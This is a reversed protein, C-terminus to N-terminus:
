ENLGMGWRMLSIPVGGYSLVQEHFARLSYDPGARRRYAERLEKFERRGVAYALQYCPNACYRRVEAEANARDFQLRDVLLNVAEGFKMGRTHLGVDAVIRVARWLLAIKQFLRQEPATYFGEDGMMEECYLAWGEISLATGVVKRVPRVQGVTHLFQLHHGPYGEHLATVPIDHTCHDRLLRDAVAGDASPDPPTVFFRGTRDSSFPGPPQYAALPTLPRLFEPTAVVELSGEPVPALKKEEVFLRAREMEKAYADVLGDASPHDARLREALDRWSVNPEIERAIQEISAEIEAVLALGYRWLEPATNRLAHEYHLRFNFWDEGIAFDGGAGDALDDELFRAFGAVADCGQACAAAFGADGDPALEREVQDILRVGGAAIDIASRVFVAPCADMTAQARALFAPVARVRGAAARARHDRPRDRLALLLYLGEFMHALWFGPNHVHPQERELCHIVVRTDGLLATRDIEDQLTETQCWELAGASSKLAALYQKVDEVGYLGLRDDYQTLGAATAAVPDMNWRLDLASDVVDTFEPPPNL